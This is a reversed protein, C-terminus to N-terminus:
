LEAQVLGRLSQKKIYWFSCNPSFWTLGKSSFTVYGDTNTVCLTM